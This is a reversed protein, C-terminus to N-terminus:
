RPMAITILSDRKEKTKFSPGQCWWCEMLEIWLSALEWFITKFTDLWYLVLFKDYIDHLLSLPKWILFLNTEYVLTTDVIFLPIGKKFYKPNEWDILVKNTQEVVQPHYHYGKGVRDISVSYTHMYIHM